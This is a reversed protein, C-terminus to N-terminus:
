HWWVKDSARIVMLGAYEGAAGANPQLSFSDYGAITSLLEGLDKFMDQNYLESNCMAFSPKTGRVGAQATCINSTGKDRRIHKERTQMAMHLTPKGTFDVSVGRAGPMMRKYEQSTARFATTGWPFGFGKFRVLLLTGVFM